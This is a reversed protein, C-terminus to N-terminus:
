DNVNVFSLYKLPWFRKTKITLKWLRKSLAKLFIKWNRLAKSQVKPIQLCLLQKYLTSSISGQHLKVWKYNTVNKFKKKKKEWEMRRKHLYNSIPRDVNQIFPSIHPQHKSEVSNPRWCILLVEAKKRLDTFHFLNLNM